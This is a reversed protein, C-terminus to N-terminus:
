DGQTTIASLLLRGFGKHIRTIITASDPVEMVEFLRMDYYADDNGVHFIAHRTQRLKERVVRLDRNFPGRLAIRRKSFGEIVSYLLAYWLYMAFPGKLHLHEADPPEGKGLEEQFCRRAWNAWIWHRHLLALQHDEIEAFPDHGVSETWEEDTYDTSM